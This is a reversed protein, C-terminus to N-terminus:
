LREGIAVETQNNHDAGKLKIAKAGSHTDRFTPTQPTVPNMNCIRKYHAVKRM